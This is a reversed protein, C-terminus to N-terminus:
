MKKAYSLRSNASDCTLWQGQWPENQKATEFWNVASTAEEDADTRVTVAWYYRTHPATELHAKTGLSDLDAFGSDYLIETLQTDAAIILQAATQNTGHADEVQWSFSLQPLTCGLPNVLHNLKCHTIKM